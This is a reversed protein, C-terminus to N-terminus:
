WGQAATQPRIVHSNSGALCGCTASLWSAGHVTLASRSPRLASWALTIPVAYDMLEVVHEITTASGGNTPEGLTGTGGFSM